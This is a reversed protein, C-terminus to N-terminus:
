EIMPESSGKLRAKPRKLKSFDPMFVRLGFGPTEKTYGAVLQGVYFDFPNRPDMDILVMDTDSMALKGLRLRNGRYPMYNGAGYTQDTASPPGFTQVISDGRLRVDTVQGSIHPPPLMQQPDLILDDNEATVGRVKGGKILDAIEL